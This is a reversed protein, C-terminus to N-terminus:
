QHKQLIIAKWCSDCIADSPYEEICENFQEWRGDAMAQDVLKSNSPLIAAALLMILFAGIILSGLIEAWYTKLAKM